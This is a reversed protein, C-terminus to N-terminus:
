TTTRLDKEEIAPVALADDDGFVIMKVKYLVSPQYTTRLANWLDNQESLPLTILEVIIKEIKDSLDPTNHHDIVRHNQFYQIVLSLHSLAQEYQTFRTVFLVYLNLRIEPLTKQQSGDPLTRVYREAARLTNEEEINILLTSVAGKQFVLPDMKEADVFVVREEQSHDADQVSQLYSNLNNKLLTLVEHIM